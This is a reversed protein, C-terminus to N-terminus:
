AHAKALAEVHEKLSALAHELDKANRREIFLKDAIKGLVKGPVTYDVSVTVKTGKGERAFRWDWQSPIGGESELRTTQMPVYETYRSKGDFNLGVMKFTWDYTVGAAIREASLNRVEVMNTYWEPIRAIQTMYDDVAEPPTDIVITREIHAM